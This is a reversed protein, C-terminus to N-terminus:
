LEIQRSVEVYNQPPLNFVDVAHVSNRFLFAFIPVQWPWLHRQKRDRIVRDRTSFYVAHSLDLPCGQSKATGLAAPLDPVEIFGYHASLCWFGEFLERLEMRDESRVRPVIEFTVTMAVVIEPLSRAQEALAIIQRPVLDTMRTLFVATGPVRVIKQEKLWAKFADATMAVAAQRRQIGAIGAHWTTMVIFVLLGFLLPVWGGEGIKLLNASFFV